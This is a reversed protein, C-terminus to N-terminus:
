IECPDELAIERLSRGVALLAVILASMEADAQPDRAAVDLRETAGDAGLVALGVPQEQADGQRQCRLLAAGRCAGARASRRGSDRRGFGGRNNGSGCIQGLARWRAVAITMM